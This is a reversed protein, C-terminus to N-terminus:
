LAQRLSPNVNRGFFTFIIFMELLTREVSADASSISRNSHDEDVTATHVYADDVTPTNEYADDVTPSNLTPMM